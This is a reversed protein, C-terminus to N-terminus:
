PFDAIQDAIQRFNTAGGLVAVLSVALVFVLQYIKGRAKRADPIGGLISLLSAVTLQHQGLAPTFM